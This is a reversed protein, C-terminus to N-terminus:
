WRGCSTPSGNWTRNVYYPKFIRWKERPEADISFFREHEAPTMGASVLDDAAYHVFLYAWDNCGYQHNGPKPPGLRRSEELLHEHTDIIPTRTIFDRLTPNITAMTSEHENAREVDQGVLV